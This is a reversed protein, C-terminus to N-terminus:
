NGSVIYYRGKSSGENTLRMKMNYTGDREYRDRTAYPVIVRQSEGDKRAEGFVYEHIREDACVESWDIAASDPWLMVMEDYQKARRAAWYAKAVEEPVAPWDERSDIIAMAKYEAFMDPTISDPEMLQDPIERETDLYILIVSQRRSDDIEGDALHHPFEVEHQIQAPYWYGDQTQAYKIVQYWTKSWRSLPDIVGDKVWDKDKQWAADADWVIKAREIIWNRSPNFHVIAHLPEQVYGSRHVKGQAKKEVGVLDGFKSKTEPLISHEVDEGLHLVVAHWMRREIGELGPGSNGIKKRELKVATGMRVQTANRQRNAPYFCASEIPEQKTRAEFAAFDKPVDRWPPSYREVRFNGDRKYIATVARSLRLTGDSRPAVEAIIAYYSKAFQREARAIANKIKPVNWGPMRSAIEADRPVGLAYIDAPGTRPYEFEIVQPESMGESEVFREMRAVRNLEPDIIMRGQGSVGEAEVRFTFITYKKGEIIEEGKVLSVGEEDKVREFAALMSDLYSGGGAFPDEENVMELITITRAEPDYKWRRGAQYDVAEVREGEKTFLRTPKLSVWVETQQGDVKMRIHVWEAAKTNEVVQMLDAHASGMPEHGTLLWWAAIAILFAVAVSPILTASVRMLMRKVETPRVAEAALFAQTSQARLRELLEPDPTPTGRGIVGLLRAFRHETHDTGTKNM